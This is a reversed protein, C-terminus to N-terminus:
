LVRIRAYSFEANSGSAGLIANRNGDASAFRTLPYNGYQVDNVNVNVSNAIPDIVFHMLVAQAALGTINILTKPTADNTKTLFTLTQIGDTQLKLYALIPAITSGSRLANITFTAGNGEASTNQFDVDIITTKAFDCNPNTSLQVGSTQWFGNVLSNM